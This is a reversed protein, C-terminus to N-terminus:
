SDHRPTEQPLSSSEYSTDCRRALWNCTEPAVNLAKTEGHCQTQVSRPFTVRLFQAVWSERLLTHLPPVAGEHRSRYEATIATIYPGYM